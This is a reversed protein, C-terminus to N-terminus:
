AHWGGGLARYVEVFAALENLRARVLQLEADFLRTDSDLVELYSSEGGQYRVDALRRADRAADVLAEQTKRREHSRDYGVLADSVERFAQQVTQRYVLAAEETQAEALRVQSRTRGANFIPQLLNAGATWAGATFLSSLANSAVGGTGTLTIQPFYAAKAVGIQANAAVIQQEAQQIDPRRALLASPLGAPVDPALAQEVLPRGRTIAGPNQGILFSLANEQQEIQRRLDVFEGEATHVLQEAQRVDVLSTAGSSHRVIALRLSDRRTTLTQQAIELQLDLARLNYYGTALEAILRTVVERRGWETALIQARAGETARRLKGWFDLEWAAAVNLEGFGTAPLTFGGPIAGRQGQGTAQGDVTPFQQSRTVGYIADAQLIRVAAIRVDINDTLGAAILARLSEDEFITKWDQEAIWTGAPVAGGPAQGGRYAEPVTVPPRKYNPGVGCGVLPAAGVAAAFWLVALQGFTRREHSTVVSGGGAMVIAAELVDKATRSPRRTM